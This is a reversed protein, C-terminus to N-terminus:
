GCQTQFPILMNKKNLGSDWYLPQLLCNNHFVKSFPFRLALNQVLLKCFTIQVLRTFPFDGKDIYTKPVEFDWTKGFKAFELADSSSAQTKSVRYQLVLQQFELEDM